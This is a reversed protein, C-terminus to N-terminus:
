NLANKAEDFLTSVQKALLIHEEKALEPDEQLLSLASSQAVKLVAMDAALSALKLGPLGHQRRGFFDGPGRLALDKEAVLFGDNTQCLVDMRQRTLENDTQCFLICYSQAEGRGVRGRLQHLQSLGFREANEVIMLSANPNDVGVEIVTTSVLVDIEKALFRAMVAEKEASKMKGHLVDVTLDPYIKTKLNEAFATAAKLEGTDSEDVLPCIIYTQHGQAAQKRVFAEIRRRMDEGVCYTEVDKRGPPREDLISLDLDGYLILALTRPIPTASMVLVHPQTQDVPTDPPLSYEPQPTQAGKAALAARQAVGFRHQEDCIVLGLNPYIVQESLLAHTGIILTARGSEIAETAARKVAAPLRGALLVTEMGFKAFLPALTQYHQAALIETPAMLATQRGNKGMQYALAAAVMTKGSGVDGQVLRNMLRGSQMDEVADEIARKQANTLSFPLAATFNEWAFPTIKAGNQCTRRSKLSLLGLSLLFLEDFVLRRRAKELLEFSDPRHIQWLAESLPMLDYAKRLDEPLPDALRDKELAYAQAVARMVVKRSLGETLPYVPVISGAPTEGKALPTFEPGTAELGYTTRSVKGYFLYTKGPLLANKVFSQNFFTLRIRSREDGAITRFITLGPRIRSTTVPEIITATFAQVKDNELASIPLIKTRDEYERPYFSLLQRRTLIGLRAFAESRAPGVGKLMRLERGAM